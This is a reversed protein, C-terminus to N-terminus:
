RNKWLAGSFSPLSLRSAFWVAAATSVNNGGYQRDDTFLSLPANGDSPASAPAPPLVIGAPAAGLNAAVFVVAGDESWRALAVTKTKEEVEIVLREKGRAGLAPHRRRIALLDRYLCLM